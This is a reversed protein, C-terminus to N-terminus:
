PIRTQCRDLTGSPPNPLVSGSQREACCRASGQMGAALSTSAQPQELIPERVEPRSTSRRTGVLSHPETAGRSSAEHPPPLPAAQISRRPTVGQDAPFLIRPIEDGRLSPQRRM